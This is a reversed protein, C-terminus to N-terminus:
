RRRTERARRRVLVPATKLNLVADRIERLLDSQEKLEPGIVGVVGGVLESNRASRFDDNRFACTQPAQEGQVPQQFRTGRDRETRVIEYLAKALYGLAALLLPVMFKPDLM